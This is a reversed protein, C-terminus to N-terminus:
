QQKPWKQTLHLSLETLIMFPDDELLPANDYLVIKERGPHNVINVVDDVNVEFIQRMRGLALMSIRALTMSSNSKAEPTSPCMITTYALITDSMIRLLMQTQSPIQDFVTNTRINEESASHKSGRAAIELSSITYGM